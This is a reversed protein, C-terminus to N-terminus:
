LLSKAIYMQAFKWIHYMLVVGGIISLPWIPTIALISIAFISILIYLKLSKSEKESSTGTTLNKYALCKFKKFFEYGVVVLKDGNRIFKDFDREMIDTFEVKLKCSVNNIKFNYHHTINLLQGNAEEREATIQLETVKGVMKKM